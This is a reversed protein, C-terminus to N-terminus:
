TEPAGAPPVACVSEYGPRPQWPRCVEEWDLTDTEGAAADDDVSGGVPDDAEGLQLAFSPAGGAAPTEETGWGADPGGHIVVWAADAAGTGGPAGAAASPSPGGPGNPSTGALAPGDGMEGAGGAADGATQGVGGAADGGGGATQGSGGAANGAGGATQGVGGAADGAGGAAQGPGSAADGLAGDDRREPIDPGGQMAPEGGAGLDGAAAGEDGGATGADGAVAGTGAGGAGLGGGPAGEAYAWSSGGSLDAGFVFGTDAATTLDEAGADAQQWAQQEGPELYAANGAWLALAQNSAQIAALYAALTMSQTTALQQLLADLRALESQLATDGQQRAAAAVAAVQARWRRAAQAIRRLQQAQEASLGGGLQARAAERGYTGSLRQMTAALSGMRRAVDGSESSLRAGDPSVGQAAAAAAPAAGRRCAVELATLSREAAELFSFFRADGAGLAGDLDALSRQLAGAGSWFAPQGGPGGQPAAGRAAAVLADLEDAAAAVLRRVDRAVAAARGDGGSGAGPVWWLVVSEAGQPAGAPAPSAGPAAAGPAAAGPASAGPTAAASAAPGDSAAHGPVAASGGRPSASPAVAMALGGAALMLWALWGTVGARITKTARLRKM